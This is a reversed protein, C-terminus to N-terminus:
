KSNFLEDTLSEFNRLCDKEQSKSFMSAKNYSFNAVKDFVEEPNPFLLHNKLFFHNNLM